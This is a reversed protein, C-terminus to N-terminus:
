YMLAWLFMLVWLFISGVVIGGEEFDAKDELSHISLRDEIFEAEKCGVDFVVLEFGLDFFENGFYLFDFYYEEACSKSFKSINVGNNFELLKSYLNLVRNKGSLADLVIFSPFDRLELNETDQMTVLEAGAYIRNNAEAWLGLM